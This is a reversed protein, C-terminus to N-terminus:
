KRRSVDDIAKQLRAVAKTLNKMRQQDVYWVLDTKKGSITSSYYAVIYPNKRRKGLKTFSYVSLNEDDYEVVLDDPIVLRQYVDTLNNIVHEGIRADNGTHAIGGFLESPFGIKSLSFQKRKNSLLCKAWVIKEEISHVQIQRISNPSSGGAYLIDIVEENDLSKQLYEKIDMHFGRKNCM